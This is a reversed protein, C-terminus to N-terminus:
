LVPIIPSVFRSLFIKLHLFPVFCSLTSLFFYARFFFNLSADMFTCVICSDHEFVPSFYFFFILPFFFFLIIYMSCSSGLIDHLFGWVNLREGLSKFHNIPYMKAGYTFFGLLKPESESARRPVRNRRVQTDSCGLLKESCPTQTKDVAANKMITVFNDRTCHLRLTKYYKPKVTTHCM